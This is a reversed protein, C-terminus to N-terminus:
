SKKGPTGRSVRTHWAGGTSLPPPVGSSYDIWRTWLPLQVLPYRCISLVGPPDDHEADDFRVYRTELFSQFLSRRHYHDTSAAPRGMLDSGSGDCTERHPRLSNLGM